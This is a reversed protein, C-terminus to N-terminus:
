SSLTEIWDIYLRCLNVNLWCVITLYVLRSWSQLFVVIKWLFPRLFWSFFAPWFTRLGNLLIALIPWFDTNKPLLTSLPVTSKQHKDWCARWASFVKPFHVPISSSFHPEHFDLFELIWFINLLIFWQVPSNWWVNESFTKWIINGFYSLM